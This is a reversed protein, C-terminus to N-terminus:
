HDHSAGAKEVDAKVLYSNAVVYETGPALGGLIEVHEADRRGLDLMRVEYTDGVRAFVVDFDRFKQLAALPVALDVEAADVTVEAEVFQGPTWLGTANDLVIRATLSQTERDSVPAVYDITSMARVDGAGAIQVSQGARVRARDRPFVDIEAWVRSFDAVWFLADGAAQEGPDANRATIVGAIPATITYRQLSENSEIVALADGASVSDGVAKDVSRIVGPFRARVERVRTRDPAIAGFLTLKEEITGPGALATQIGAATAIGAPITTRGEYSAYRWEHSAGAHRATVRVDFSHPETVTRSGRLFAGAPAFEIRDVAGGLRELTVVLEVAGPDVPRGAATAWAHYEPPVGSEFILLELAFDGDVLLRGGNPGEPAEPEVSREDVAVEARDTCAALFAGIGVLSVITKITKM